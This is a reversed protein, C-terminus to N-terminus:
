HLRVGYCHWLCVEGADDVVSIDTSIGSELWCSEALDLVHDIAESCTTHLALLLDGSVISWAGDASQPCVLYSLHSHM